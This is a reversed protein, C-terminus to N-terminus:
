EGSVTIHDLIIAKPTISYKRAELEKSFRMKDQIKFINESIAGGTIFRVEGDKVWKALRFEGGFDGTTPDMLFSSFALIEIYEGQLYSGLPNKGGDMEFTSCSGIHEIGMYHSYRASTRLNQLKGAEYMTYASLIKGEDDVPKAYISNELAPDIRITLKEEADPSLFNEHLKARSAGQYIRSDSAQDVYFFFFDDVADGSIIVRQDELKPNRVARSRGDTEMLQKDVIKEIEKVDIHTLYYGNFIEVPEIGENSDTVIEFTFEGYPYRVDTGKSTLVHRHGEIAFIECSNVRSAYPYEKYITRHIEDYCEKLDKKNEFARIKMVDPDENSPLDYWKNKVFGASFIADEIKQRIEEVSDSIGLLFSADGKYKEGNELFDVFVRVQYEQVDACRNMDLRDKIFFLETSSYSKETITWASIDQRDLLKKIQDIM